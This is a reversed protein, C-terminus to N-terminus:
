SNPNKSSDKLYIGRYLVPVLGLTLSTSFFLGFILAVAMPKFLASQNIWLPLIGGITTMTTMVIPRFRVTAAEIIAESLNLKQQEYVIRDILIIANNIVIGSLSIIGLFTMFGMPQGTILLGIVVGIFGLPITILILLPKRFSNFQLVLCLLIALVAFHIENFISKESKISNEIEGGVEYFYLGDFSSFLEYLSPTMHDLASKATYGEKLNARVTITRMRNRRFISSPTWDLNINALQGLYSAHGSNQSTIRLADLEDIRSNYSDKSRIVIPITDHKDRYEGVTVGQLATQMSLAVDLHSMGALLARDSDIDINIKKKQLGWNNRVNYVGPTQRFLEEVTRSLNKLIPIEDGSIRIEIPSKAPPGYSIRNFIGRVNPLKNLIFTELKNMITDITALDTTNFLFFAYEPKSNTLIHNLIFRPAGSGIYTSWSEIGSQNKSAMLTNHIYEEIINVAEATKEIPAGPPLELEVSFWPRDSPPFFINPIFRLSIIALLFFCSFLCIIKGPHPLLKVLIQKYHKLFQTLYPNNKAKKNQDDLILYCLSPTVTLALFWSFFLCITVVEFLNATYEGAESKALYIPLFAASTTLSSTLMPIALTKSSELAANVKSAGQEMLQHISEVIVIANDVLMGLAIIMATLSIQNLSISYVDMVFLSALITLPIHIAVVLGLRRGMFGFMIILVLFMAQILSSVFRNVQTAVADAQIVVQEFHIIKEYRNNLQIIKDKLFNGMSLINNGEALSVGIAICSGLHNTMFPRSPKEYGRRVDAYDKLLLLEGTSPHPVLTEEIMKVSEYNGSPELFLRENETDVYGGSLIINLSAIYDRFQMSSINAHDLRAQDFEIYIREPQIGILEVKGIGRNRLLEKQIKEAEIKLEAPSLQETNLTIIHGFVDGFEDNIIPGQINSPLDPTIRTIKRRMSDWIPRMNIFKEQMQMTVISVGTRSESIVFDLEPLEQIVKEIKDTVLSEVREPSAGPFFTLVQAARVTFGPDEQRPMRIYAILGLLSLILILMLTIRWRKLFYNTITTM